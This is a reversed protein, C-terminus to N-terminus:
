SAGVPLANSEALTSTPTPAFLAFSQVLIKDDRIVFTDTALTIFPEAKWLIYALDGDIDQRIVTMAQLLEPPSARLFGDFLGRIPELGHLPGDPTFVVSDPTYDRMISEIGEGFAGLHRGLTTETSM